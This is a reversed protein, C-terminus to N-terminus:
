HADILQELSWPSLDHDTCRRTHYLEYKDATWFVDIERLCITDQIHQEPFSPKHQTLQILTSLVPNLAEKPNNVYKPCYQWNM